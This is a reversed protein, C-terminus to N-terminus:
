FGGGGKEGHDLGLEELVEAERGAVEGGRSEVAERGGFGGGVGL